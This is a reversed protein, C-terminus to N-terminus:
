NINKVENVDCVEDDIYLVSSEYSCFSDKLVSINSFSNTFCFTKILINSGIGGTLLLSNSSLIEFSTKNKAGFICDSFATLPFSFVLLFYIIRYM